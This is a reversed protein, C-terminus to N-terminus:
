TKPTVAALCKPCGIHDMDIRRLEHPEIKYGCQPCRTSLSARIKELDIKRRHSM